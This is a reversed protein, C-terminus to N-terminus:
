HVDSTSRYFGRHSNDSHQIELEIEAAAEFSAGRSSGSETVIGREFLFRTEKHSM